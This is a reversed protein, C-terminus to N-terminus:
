VKRRELICGPFAFADKSRGALADIEKQNPMLYGMVMPNTLAARKMAEADVVKASYIWRSSFGAAKEYTRAVTPAVFPAPIYPAPEPAVYVPTELIEDGEEKTAGLQEAQAALALRAEEEIRSAELLAKEAAERSIREEEAYKRAAEETARREAEQRIREQVEEYAIAKSKALKKAVAVPDADRKKEACAEKHKEHWHAIVPDHTKNIEKEMAVLATYLATAATYPLQDKVVLTKVQDCLSVAERSVRMIETGLEVQETISNINTTM